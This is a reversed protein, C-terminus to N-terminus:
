TTPLHQQLLTALGLFSLFGIVDTFTTLFISSAIAPDVNIRKLFLPILTGVIGAVFMNIIMAAGLVLGLIFNGKWLYAVAGALVGTALGNATGM